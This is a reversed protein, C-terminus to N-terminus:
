KTVSSTDVCTALLDTQETGDASSRRKVFKM